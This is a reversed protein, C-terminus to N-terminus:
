WSLCVTPFTKENRTWDRFSCRSVKKFAYAVNDQTFSTSPQSGLSFALRELGRSCSRLENKRLDVAQRRATMQQICEAVNRTVMGTLSTVTAAWEQRDSSLSFRGFDFLQTVEFPQLSMMEQGIKLVFIDVNLDHLSRELSVKNTSIRQSITVCHNFM